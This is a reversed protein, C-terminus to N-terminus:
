TANDGGLDQALWPSRRRLRHAGSAGPVRLALGGPGTSQITPLAPPPDVAVALRRKAHPQVPRAPRSPTITVLGADAMRVADLAVGFVGRGLIFSLDRVTHDGDVRRLVSLEGSTLTRDAVDRVFTGLRIRDDDPRLARGARFLARIRRESESVMREIDVGVVTSPSTVVQEEARCGTIVGAAMVFVADAIAIISRPGVAEAPSTWQAPDHPPPALPTGPSWAWVIGGAGFRIVGGPQGLVHVTGAARLGADRLAEALLPLMTM